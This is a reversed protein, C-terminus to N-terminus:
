PRGRPDARGASFEGPRADDPRLLLDGAPHQEAVAGKIRDDISREDGRIHVARQPRAARLINRDDDAVIGLLQRNEPQHELGAQHLGDDLATKGRLQLFQAGAAALELVQESEVPCGQGGFLHAARRSYLWRTESSNKRM